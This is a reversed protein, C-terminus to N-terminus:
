SSPVIVGFEQAYLAGQVGDAVLAPAQPAIAIGTERYQGELINALHGPSAIWASVISQPTALSLTGWALNEGIVYGDSSNPIYGTSRIRQVPTLGGPSVHDFYNEVLMEQDHEEAARELAQNPELPAEGHQARERNVLCLVAARVDELDGAEPTLQTNQCPTALVRAILIARRAALQGPSPGTRRDGERCRATRRSQGRGSVKCRYAGRRPRPQEQTFASVRVRASPGPAIGGLAARAPGGAVAAGLAAALIMPGASAPRVRFSM